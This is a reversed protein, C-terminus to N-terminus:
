GTLILCEEMVPLLREMIGPGSFILRDKLLTKKRRPQMKWYLFNKLHWIPKEYPIGAEQGSVGRMAMLPLEAVLLFIVPGPMYRLITLLVVEPGLGGWNLHNGYFSGLPNIIHAYMDNIYGQFSIYTGFIDKETVTAEPTKDLYEMCSTLSAIGVLFVILYKIVKIKKM